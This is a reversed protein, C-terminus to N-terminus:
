YYLDPKQIVLKGIIDYVFITAAIDMPLSITVSTGAPNPFLKVNKNSLPVEIVLFDIVTVVANCTTTNSNTDTVSLIVNNDGLDNIDFSNPVAVLSAVGCADNSANNVDSGTISANGNGDLSITIDQCIAIPVVNDEVTINATCSNSNNNNDTVTLQVTNVGVDDCNFITIDLSLSGIGCADASGNDVQAATISGNGNTDLQITLDQCIATPIIQDEVTIMSTCTDSNGAADMVTLTVTVPSGVDGCSFTNIDISYSTIGVDDTSGNDIEAATITAAGSADLQVTIDKCIAIPATVDAGFLPSEWLGRGFSGARIKGNTHNIELDYIPVNPLGTNYSTWATQDSMYYVGVDMGVYLADNPNGGTNEFAISLAPTNPLAGSINTWSTGANVSEYVKQGATYGGLTIWVRNANTPDVVIATITLTPWTGTINTWNGGTNSSTQILNNFAAYLRAPNDIGVAIAGSGDAGLNTWSTGSNTSRYVDTYGGYIIAPNSADMAYPTVWAGTSGGPQIWTSTNGGNTSRQLGGFQFSYFMNNNNNYDIMCDMGDGGLIHQINMSGTYLNTGNDQSGGLLLNQNAEVGAIKYFQMIQLGNWINTWTLGNDTSFSIGGDSGCYLRNDLPNYVLDHIDAHVYQSAVRSDWFAIMTNSTGSNGSRWVNVGGTIINFQNAPNVAIALDYWSQDSTDNGSFNSGLINPTTAMTSFTSGSDTSLYIGRFTGIGASGGPGALYYIYNSNAPSVAIAARTESTPLRTNILSWTSGTNTSRYFTDFTTAYVTLPAGPKFEIDRFDGALVSSWTVWGDTTRYLGVNTAALMINSNSPHMLLKYGRIFNTVGFSFGTTSWTTGSDTSKMIGVSYTSAGDGDGTLIYITSPTTHDVVIGSVGLSAIYDSIPAWTVGGDTTKWVGGSPVGIYIINANTPHFAIVNVRGLGGNYGSAGTTYSTPGLPKWSGILSRELPPNESNLKSIVEWNLASFNQLKGDANVKREMKYEWRKYQKFGSGRGKDRTAFYSEALIKVDELTTNETPNQILKLYEQSQVTVIGLLLGVLFLLKTKM